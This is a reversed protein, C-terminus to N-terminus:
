KKEAEKKIENLDGLIKKYNVVREKLEPLTDMGKMVRMMPDNERKLEKLQVTTSHLLKLYEKMKKDILEHLSKM